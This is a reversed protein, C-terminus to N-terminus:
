AEETPDEAYVQEIVLDALTRGGPLPEPSTLWLLTQRLLVSASVDHAVALLKLGRHLESDLDLTYRIVKRQGAPRRARTPTTAPRTTPLNVPAAQPATTPTADVPAGPLGVLNPQGPTTETAHESM